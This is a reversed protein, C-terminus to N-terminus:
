QSSKAEASRRREDRATRKAENWPFRRGDARPTAAVGFGIIYARRPQDSHNAGTFHLTRSGHITAGGAPLPCAVARAEDVPDVAELGHVRTDGGISQHPAVESHQSGPLFQMCGNELTAEQLPMWISISHYDLGPDWYAEDQHWPTPAGSQAPKLIAHDGTFAADPGFLQRAIALGNAEYLTDALEPAYQRPSLIQPLAAAKGEEDAGALDFQNGEDRGARRQFIQDYVGRLHEVEDQTTIADLSLYGNQHFFDIQEQSLTVTPPREPM